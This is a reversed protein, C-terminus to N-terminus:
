CRAAWPPLAIGRACSRRLYVTDCTSSVRPTTGVCAQDAEVVWHGSSQVQLWAQGSCLQYSTWRDIRPCAHLPSDQPLLRWARLCPGTDPGRPGQNHRTGCVLCTHLCCSQSVLQEQVRGHPWWLVAAAETRPEPRHTQTAVLGAALPAQGTESARALFWLSCCTGHAQGSCCRRWPGLALDGPELRM